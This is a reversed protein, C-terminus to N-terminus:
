FNSACALQVLKGDVPHAIGLTTSSTDKVTWQQHGDAPCALKSNAPGVLEASNSKDGKKTSVQWQKTSPQWYLYRDVAAPPPPTTTVRQIPIITTTRGYSRSGSPRSGGGGGHSSRSSYISSSRSGSQYRGSGGSSPLSSSSSSSYRGGSSPFSSSSSSSWSSSGSSPLSSSSSSSWSSWSSSSWSTSGAPKRWTTTSNNDIKGIFRKRRRHVTVNHRFELTSRKDLDLKYYPKGEWMGEYLYVGFPDAGLPQSLLAAAAGGSVTLELRPSACLCGHRALMEAQTLEVRHQAKSQRRRVGTNNAELRNAVLELRSAYTDVAEMYDPLCADPVPSTPQARVQYKGGMLYEVLIVSTMPLPIYDVIDPLAPLQLDTIRGLPKSQPNVITLDFDYQECPEVPVVIEVTQSTFPPSKRVPGAVKASAKTSLRLFRNKFVSEAAWVPPTAPAPKASRATSVTPRATTTPYSWGGGPLRTPPHGSPNYGWQTTLPRATTSKSAAAAPQGPNNGALQSRYAPRKNDGDWRWDRNPAAGLGDLKRGTGYPDRGPLRYALNLDGGNAPRPTTTTTTTVTKKDAALRAAGSKQKGTVEIHKICSAFTIFKTDFKISAKSLDFQKSIPDQAYGVTFHELVETSNFAPLAASNYRATESAKIDTHSSDDEELEVRFNHFICPEINVIKTQTNKDAIIYKKGQGKDQGDKWVWLFFKDVCRSRKIITSWDVLVKNPESKSPQSVRPPAKEWKADTGFCSADVTSCLCAGVLLLLELTRM